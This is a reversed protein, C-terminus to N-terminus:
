EEPVGGVVGEQTWPVDPLSIAKGELEKLLAIARFLMLGVAWEEGGDQKLREAVGQLMTRDHERIPDLIDSYRQILPKTQEPKQEEDLSKRKEV